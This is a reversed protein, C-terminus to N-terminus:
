DLVNTMNMKSAVDLFTYVVFLIAEQLLLVPPLTALVTCMAVIMVDLKRLDKLPRYIRLNDVWQSTSIFVSMFYYYPGLRNSNWRKGSEVTHNVLSPSGRRVCWVLYRRVPLLMGLVKLLAALNTTTSPVCRSRVTVCHLM